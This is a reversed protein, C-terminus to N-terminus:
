RGLIMQYIEDFNFTPTAGKRAAVYAGAANAATLAKELSAGAALQTAAVATFADGAGVTDSVQVAIRPAAAHGCKNWAQAGDAGKSLLLTDIEFDHMLCTVAEQNTEPLNLLRKLVNLEDDNIKLLNCLNMSERIIQENYYDQRLNLDCVRMCNPGTAAVLSTIAQRSVSNRQALTGFCLIDANKVAAFAEPLAQIFDYAADTEIEYEPSGQSNVSVLVKGTAHESDRQILAVPIKLDAMRRLVEDGDADEGIRSIIRANAHFARCHYCFNLPAGGLHRETSFVDWLIEGISLVNLERADFVQANERSNV